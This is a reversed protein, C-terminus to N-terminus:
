RQAHTAERESLVHSGRALRAPTRLEPLLELFVAVVGADLKTGAEKRIIEAAEETTFAARYSRTSTLADFVDVVHIIRAILPIEEGRLGLPYGSGDPNEHHYLVGDLVGGFSAIPKLIEYGMAPHQRIVEFERTTLRTPKCLITEPVGIKGVDHLLGAMEVLQCETPSCGLREAVLRAWYGVRESHGSTYHDKKDIAAVLARTSELSMRRLREHIESNSILQGGFSLLSELMLMDGSTFEAAEAPRLVLVVHVNDDLRVLPGILARAQGTGHVTVTRSRRTGDVYPLLERLLAESAHVDGTSLLADESVDYQRRQGDPAVVLVRRAGLLGALRELLVREIAEVETLNAIRQTFDFLLNLQEYSRLVENALGENEDLLQAVRELTRALWQFALPPTPSRADHVALLLGNRGNVQIPQGATQFGRPCRGHNLQASDLQGAAARRLWACGATEVQGADHNLCTHLCHAPPQCPFAGPGLLGLSGPAACSHGARASDQPQRAPELGQQGSLEGILEVLRDRTQGSREPKSM